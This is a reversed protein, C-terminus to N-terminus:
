DIEGNIVWLDFVDIEDFLRHTVRDIYPLQNGEPDVAFFYPNREMIFLEETLTNVPIWPGVWPKEPNLYWTSKSAYFQDWSNQGAEAVMAALGEPDDTLDKHFQAMYHGPAYFNSMERNPGSSSLRGMSYLLLPKPHAFKLKVTYDDVVEIEMPTNEPG